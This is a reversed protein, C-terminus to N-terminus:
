PKLTYLVDDIEFNFEGRDISETSNLSEYCVVNKFYPRMASEFNQRTIDDNLEYLVTYQFIDAVVEAYEPNMTQFTNKIEDPTFIM